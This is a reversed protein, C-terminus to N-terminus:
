GLPFKPTLNAWRKRNSIEVHQQEFDIKLLEALRLSVVLYHEDSFFPKGGPAM